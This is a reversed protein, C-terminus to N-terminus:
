LPSPLILVRNNISDSLVVLNQVTHVALAYAPSGSIPLVKRVQSNLYDVVSLTRSSSNLTLLMGSQYNFALSTPNVGARVSLQLLNTPNLVVVTNSASSEVLFFQSVPDYAVAVPATIGRARNTFIPIGTAVDMIAATNSASEAVVAMNLDPAIAVGIPQSGVALGSATPTGSGLLLLDVSNSATNTVMVSGLSQSAGVGSPTGGVAVTGTVTAPNTTLDVVSLTSDASNSVAAFGNRSVVAVGLPTHGVTVTSLVTGFTPSAPSIDIVSLTGDGSNAALALNTDPDIAVGQPSNGVAVSQAVLLNFVNSVLSASNQVDVVLRVPTALMGAPVSATLENASVFTTAVPTENLRITSSGTFGAGIVLLPAPAAGTFALTPSVQVIQPEGSRSRTAGLDLVTVTGDVDDVVLAKNSAADLASAIPDSGLTVSAGIQAPVSLDIAAAQHLSSNVFLGVNTLPNAAAAVNGLTLPVTAVSQDLLSFLTGSPSSPDALLLTNTETNVAVGRTTASVTATFVTALRTLDVVTLAGAGGPSVVAWGLQPVVTVQPKTGAVLAVTGLVTPAAGPCASTDLVIAAAASQGVVIARGHIEDVGVAFPASGGPTLPLVPGAAPTSLDVVAVDRSGNDVVLAFNRLGDVAVSTPTTGVNVTATVTTFSTDLLALSNNGQQLVVPVGTVDNVAVAVPQSLGSIKNAVVPATTPRIALNVASRPPTAAPNRVAVQFLGAQTLDAANVIAQLGRPFTVDPATGAAHGNFESLTAPTYYGGNVVVTTTPSNQPLTDPKAALATPRVPVVNVGVASTTNGNQRQAAVTYTGPAGLLSFPIRARLVNSSVAAVSGGPLTAVNVGAFLVNTTSLFGTGNLYIDQLVAGAPITAPSVSALTPDAATLILVIATQFQSTDAASQGQITVTASSPVTTPATFIAANALTGDGITTSTILGTSASGGQVSNVLWNVKTNATGSVTAIFNLTEGAGVTLSGTPTITIAVGSTLTVAATATAKMDQNSVATILVCNSTTTTTGNTTTTCANTTTTTGTTSGSCANAAPIAAPATYLGNTTITGCISNGGTVGNVQWIVTTDTANAVGAAFQSTGQLAVTASTPQIAVTVSTTSSHCGAALGALLAILAALGAKSCYVRLDRIEGM